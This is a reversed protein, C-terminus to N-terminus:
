VFKWTIRRNETKMEDGKRHYEKKWNGFVKMIKLQRAEQQLWGIRREVGSANCAWNYM